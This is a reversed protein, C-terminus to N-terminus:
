PYEADRARTPSLIRVCPIWLQNNSDVIVSADRRFDHQTSLGLRIPYKPIGPNAHSPPIRKPLRACFQYRHGRLLPTSWKHHPDNRVRAVKLTLDKPQRKQILVAAPPLGIDEIVPDRLEAHMLRLVSRDQQAPHHRVFQSMEQQARVRVRRRSDHLRTPIVRRQSSDRM